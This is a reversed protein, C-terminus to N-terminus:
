AAEDLTQKYHAIMKYAWDEGEYAATDEETFIEADFNYYTISEYWSTSVTTTELKGSKATGAWQEDDHMMKFFGNTWVELRIDFQKYELDESNASDRLYQRAKGVCDARNEGSILLSFRCVYYHDGDETQLEEIRKEGKKLKNLVITNENINFNTIECPDELYYGKTFFEEYSAYPNIYMRNPLGAPIFPITTTMPNDKDDLLINTKNGKLAGTGRFDNVRNTYSFEQQNLMDKLTKQLAEVDCEVIPAAKQYYFEGGAQVKFGRVAMSGTAGFAKAGGQGQLVTIAQTAGIKNQNAKQYIMAIAKKITADSANKEMASNILALDEATYTSEAAPPKNHYDGQVVKIDQHLITGVIFFIGVALGILALFGAVCILAIKKKSLKKKKKPADEVPVKEEVEEPEVPEVDNVNESEIPDDDEVVENVVEEEPITSETLENTTQENIDKEEM